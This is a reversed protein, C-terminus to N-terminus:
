EHRNVSLRTESRLTKLRNVRRGSGYWEAAKTMKLELEKCSWEIELQKEQLTYIKVAMCKNLGVQLDIKMM